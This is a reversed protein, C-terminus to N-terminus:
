VRRGPAHAPWTLDAVVHDNVDAEGEVGDVLRFRLTDEFKQFLHVLEVFECTGDGHFVEIFIAVGLRPWFSQCRRMARVTVRGQVIMSTQPPCVCVM